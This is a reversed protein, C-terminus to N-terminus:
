NKDKMCTKRMGNHMTDLLVIKDTVFMVLVLHDLQNIIKM